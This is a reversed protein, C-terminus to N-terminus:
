RAASYTTMALGSAAFANATLQRASRSFSKVRAWDNSLLAAIPVICPEGCFPAAIERSGYPIMLVTTLPELALRM